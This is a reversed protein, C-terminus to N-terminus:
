SLEKLKGRLTPVDSGTIRPVVRYAAEVFNYLAFAILGLAAIGLLFRGYAADRLDGLAQGLGGAQSPDANLAALGISLAVLALLGGYVILGAKLVPDLEATTQSGRLHDKYKGQWGKFVYYVGAGLLILAGIGVLWRGGPMSMVKQTWDQASDGSGSDGMALGIVSLGILGHLLGTTVQGTRAVMGKADTGHDEVDALGAIVRWIMYGFLGLGIGWLAWVGWPQAKLTALADKTGSAEGQYLAAWFALLGVLVYIVGRAGYGARMVWKLGEHSKDAM